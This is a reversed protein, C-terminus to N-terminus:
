QKDFKRLYQIIILLDKLEDFVNRNERLIVRVVKDQYEGMLIFVAVVFLLNVNM